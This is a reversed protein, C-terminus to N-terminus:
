ARIGCGYLWEAASSPSTFKGLHISKFCQDKEPSGGFITGLAYLAREMWELDYLELEFGIEYGCAGMYVDFIRQELAKLENAERQKKTVRKAM